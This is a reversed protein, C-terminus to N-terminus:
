APLRDGPPRNLLATMVILNRAPGTFEFPAGGLKGAVRAAERVRLDASENLQTQVSGPDSVETALFSYCRNIADYSDMADLNLEFIVAQLLQQGGKTLMSAENSSTDLELWEGALEGARAWGDPVQEAVTM